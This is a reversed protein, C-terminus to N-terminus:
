VHARGIQNKGTIIESLTETFKEPEKLDQSYIINKINLVDELKPFADKWGSGVQITEEWLKIYKM